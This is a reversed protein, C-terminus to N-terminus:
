GFLDRFQNAMQCLEAYQSQTMRGSDLLEQVKQKPDGQFTRKFEGFQRMMNAFGNNMPPRGGNLQNFLPNM